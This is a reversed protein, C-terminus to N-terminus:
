CGGSSCSAGSGAIYYPDAECCNCSGCQGYACYWIYQHYLVCTDYSINPPSYILDCCYWNAASADKSRGFLVAAATLGSTGIKALFGRRSSNDRPLDFETGNMRSLQQLWQM